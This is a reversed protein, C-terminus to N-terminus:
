GSGSGGERDRRGCREKTGPKLSCSGLRALGEINVLLVTKGVDRLGLLLMSKAHRGALVRKLVVRAITIIEDRGTLAPPRSGAGPAFPNAGSGHAKWPENLSNTVNLTVVLKIM